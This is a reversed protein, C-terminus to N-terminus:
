GYDSYRQLVPEIEEPKNRLREWLGKDDHSRLKRITGNVVAAPFVEADEYYTKAKELTDAAEVCSLPLIPYDGDRGHVDASLEETLEIAEESNRVGYNVAVTIGALLLFINASPDPARLEITRKCPDREDNDRNFSWWLPIRILATRNRTGWSANTPSEKRSIFRLYSPPITNGFATLSPSLKLIGGIVQKAETSLEDGIKAFINSGDKLGCLHLHMGSRAHELSPKPSFSVSAGFKLSLNRLVWKTLVVGEATKSLSQPQLEIEHQEMLQDAPTYFRGVETHAYKTPVGLEELTVLAENRLNTFVAFPATEHYNNGLVSSKVSGERSQAYYEVEALARLSIASTSCLQAEARSLIEQPASPLPRGNEDLYTCMIDLAPIPSFPDIFFSDLRPMIYIDSKNSDIYSFLSSGDVREGLELIEELKGRNRVAFSLTKLRCDEPIHCFNVVKISKEKLIKIIDAKSASRSEM